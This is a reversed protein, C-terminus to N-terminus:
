KNKNTKMTQALFVICLKIMNFNLRVLILSLLIKIKIPWAAKATAFKPTCTLYGLYKMEMYPKTFELFLISYTTDDRSTEKFRITTDYSFYPDLNLFPDFIFFSPVCSKKWYVCLVMNNNGDDCGRDSDRNGNGDDSYM